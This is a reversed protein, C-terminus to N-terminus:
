RQKSIPVGTRIYRDTKDAWKHALSRAQGISSPKSRQKFCIYPPLGPSRPYRHITNSNTSRGRYSPQKEVYVRVKGPSVRDRVYRFKYGNYSETSM